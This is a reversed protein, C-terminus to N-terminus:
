KFFHLQDLVKNVSNNLSPNASAAQIAQNVVAAKAQIDKSDTPAVPIQPVSSIDSKAAQRVASNNSHSAHNLAGLAALREEPTPAAAAYATVLNVLPVDFEATDLTIIHLALEREAQNTSTLHTIYSEILASKQQEAAQREEFQRQKEQNSNTIFNFWTGLVLLLIPMLVKSVVDLIKETDRKLLIPPKPETSTEAM